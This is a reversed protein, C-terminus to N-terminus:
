GKAVLYSGFICAEQLRVKVAGKKTGGLVAVGLDLELLGDKGEFETLLALFGFFGFVLFSLFRIRL